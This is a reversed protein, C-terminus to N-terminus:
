TADLQQLLSRFRTIIIDDKSVYGKDIVALKYELSESKSQPKMVESSQSTIYGRQIKAREVISLVVIAVFFVIGIILLKKTGKKM